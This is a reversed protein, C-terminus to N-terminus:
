GARVSHIRPLSTTFIFGPGFSRVADVLAASSAIYGGVVGFAKALTGQVVTVRDLCGDREAIGGGREGYMGVAHVEDLYTMAGYREAASCIDAIPAVDGDMSYVSEFAVIKPRVPDATALLDALHEVSNHRFIRKEAGSHRIGAIM